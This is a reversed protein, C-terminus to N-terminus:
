GGDRALKMTFEKNNRAHRLTHIIINVESISYRHSALYHAALGGLPQARALVHSM